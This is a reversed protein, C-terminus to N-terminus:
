VGVSFGKLGTEGPTRAITEIEKAKRVEEPSIDIGEITFGRSIISKILETTNVSSPKEKLIQVMRDKSIFKDTPKIIPSTVGPTIEPAIDPFINNPNYKDQKM